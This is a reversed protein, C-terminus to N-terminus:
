ITDMVPSLPRYREIFVKELEAAEEDSRAHTVVCLDFADPGYKRLANHFYSDNGHRVM